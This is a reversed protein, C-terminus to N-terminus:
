NLSVGKRKHKNANRPPTFQYFTSRSFFFLVHTFPFPKIHIFIDTIFYNENLLIQLKARIQELIISIM